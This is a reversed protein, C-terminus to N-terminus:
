IFVVPFTDVLPGRFGPAASRTVVSYRLALLVIFEVVPQNNRRAKVLTFTQHHESDVHNVLMM